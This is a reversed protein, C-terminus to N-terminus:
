RNLISTVVHKFVLTDGQETRLFITHSDHAIVKGTYHVGNKLYLTVNKDKAHAEDLLVNQNSPRVQTKQKKTNDSETVACYSVRGKM